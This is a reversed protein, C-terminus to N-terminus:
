AAAALTKALFWSSYLRRAHHAEQRQSLNDFKMSGDEVCSASHGADSIESAQFGGQCLRSRAEAPFIKM